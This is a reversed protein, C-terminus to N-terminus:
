GTEFVEFAYVFGQAEDQTMAPQGQMVGRIIANYTNCRFTLNRWAFWGALLAGLTYTMFFGLVEDTWPSEVWARGDEQMAKKLRNHFPAVVVVILQTMWIAGYLWSAALTVLVGMAFNVMDM